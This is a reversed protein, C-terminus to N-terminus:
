TVGRWGGASSRAAVDLGAFAQHASPPRSRPKYVADLPAPTYDWSMAPGQRRPAASRPRVYASAAREVLRAYGPLGTKDGMRHLSAASSVAPPAAREAAREVQCRSRPLLGGVGCAMGAANHHAPGGLLRPGSASACRRPAVRIGGTSNASRPRQLQAAAPPLMTGFREFEAEKSPSLDENDAAVDAFELAADYAERECDLQQLELLERERRREVLRLRREAEERRRNEIEDLKEQRRRDKEQIELVWEEELKKKALSEQKKKALWRQMSAAREKREAEAQKMLADDEAARQMAKQKQRHKLAVREEQKKLLVELKRQKEAQLDALLCVREESTLDNIDNVQKKQFRGGKITGAYSKRTAGLKLGGVCDAGDKPAQPREWQTKKTKVEFYYKMGTAEDLIEVWGPLLPGQVGAPEVEPREWQTRQSAAHYYYAMGTNADLLETWGAPLAEKRSSSVQAAAAAPMSAAAAPSAAAAYVDGAAEEPMPDPEELAPCAETAAAQCDLTDAAAAQRSDDPLAAAAEPSLQTQADAVDGEGAAETQLGEAESATQCAPADAAAPQLSDEPLEVQPEQLQEAQGDVDDGAPSEGTLEVKPTDENSM